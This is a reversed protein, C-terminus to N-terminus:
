SCAVLMMITWTEHILSDWEGTHTFALPVQTLSLHSFVLTLFKGLSLGIILTRNRRYSLVESISTIVHKEDNSFYKIYIFSYITIASLQLLTLTFPFPFLDGELLRKNLLNHGVSVSYWILIILIFFVTQNSSTDKGGTGNKPDKRVPLLSISDEYPLTLTVSQTM